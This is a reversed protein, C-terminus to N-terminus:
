FPHIKEKQVRAHCCHVCITKQVCCDSPIWNRKSCLSTIGQPVDYAGCANVRKELPRVNNWIKSDLFLLIDMMRPLLHQEYGIKLLEDRGCVFLFRFLFGNEMQITDLNEKRISNNWFEIAGDQRSTELTRERRSKWNAFVQLCMGNQLRSGMWVWWFAWKGGWPYQLHAVFNAIEIELREM